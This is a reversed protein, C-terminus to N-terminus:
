ERVRWILRLLFDEYRAIMRERSFHEARLRAGRSLRQWTQEDDLVMTLHAALADADDVASLLGSEGHEIIERPGHPCATSVVPVGLAMAEVLANGFGELRSAMLFVDARAMWPFPNAVFGILSVHEQLGLRAIDAEIAPRQPGEGLIVFHADVRERMRAFAQLQIDFGKELSLRSAAVVWPKTKPLSPEFEHAQEAVQELDIGNHIAVVRSRPAHFHQVLDECTGASPTVLGHLRNFAFGFFAREYWSPRLGQFRFHESLPGLVSGALRTGLRHLTGALAVFMAGNHMWGFVADPRLECVVRAIAGAYIRANRWNYPYPNACGPFDDFLRVRPGDAREGLVARHGLLWADIREFRDFMGLLRIEAGGMVTAPLVFLVKPHM